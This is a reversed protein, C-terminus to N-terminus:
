KSAARKKPSKQYLITEEIHTHVEFQSKIQKFLNLKRKAPAAELRDFLEAVKKHDAKLLEFADM